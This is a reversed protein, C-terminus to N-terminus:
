AELGLSRFVVPEAEHEWLYGGGISVTASCAIPSVGFRACAVFAAISAQGVVAYGAAAVGARAVRKTWPMDTHRDQWVQHVAGGAGFPVLPHAARRYTALGGGVAISETPWLGVLQLSKVSNKLSFAFVSDWYADSGILPEYSDNLAQLDQYGDCDERTAYGREDMCARVADRRTEFGETIFGGDHDPRMSPDTFKMKEVLYTPAPPLVVRFAVEYSDEWTSGASHQSYATANRQETTSDCSGTCQETRMGTPDHMTLPNAGAYLWQNMGIPSTLSGFVVDRTSFAGRSPAYWRTGMDVAKTLPDTADSQFGFIAQTGSVGLVRGWPDFATTGQNAATTSVIVVTDGHPDRLYYSAAATGVKQGLLAGTAGTAYTTTGAKVLQETIGRYIQDTATKNLTRRFTRDFADPAYTVRTAAATTGCTTAGTKACTLRSFADYTYARDNASVTTSDESVLTIGAPDYSYNIREGGVANDTRTALGAADFTTTWDAVM